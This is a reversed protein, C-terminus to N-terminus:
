ENERQQKLLERIRARYRDEPIRAHATGYVKTQCSRRMGKSIHEEVVKYKENELVNSVDEQNELYVKCTTCSTKGSCKHKLTVRGQKAARLVTHGNRINIQRTNGDTHEFIVKAMSLRRILFVGKLLVLMNIVYIYRLIKKKFTIYNM